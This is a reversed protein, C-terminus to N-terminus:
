RTTYTADNDHSSEGGGWGLGGGLRSWGGSMVQDCSPPPPTGSPRWVSWACKNQTMATPNRMLILIALAKLVNENEFKSENTRETFKDSSHLGREGQFTQNEDQGATQHYFRTKHRAMWGLVGFLSKVRRFGIRAINLHQNIRGPRCLSLFLLCRTNGFQSLNLLRHLRFAVTDVKTITNWPFWVGFNRAPLFSEQKLCRSLRPQLITKTQCASTMAIIMAFRWIRRNLRFDLPKCTGIPDAAGLTLFESILSFRQSPPKLRLKGLTKEPLQLQYEVDVNREQLGQFFFNVPPQFSRLFYFVLRM